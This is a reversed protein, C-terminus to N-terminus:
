YFDGVRIGRHYHLGKRLLRILWIIIGFGVYSGFFVLFGGEVQTQVGEPCAATCGLKLNTAAYYAVIYPGFVFVPWAVIEAVITAVYWKKKMKAELPAAIGHPIPHGEVVLKQYSYIGM